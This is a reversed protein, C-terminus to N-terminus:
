DDMMLMLDEAMMKRCYNMLWADRISNMEDEDCNIKILDREISISTRHYHHFLSSVFSVDFTSEKYPRLLNKM